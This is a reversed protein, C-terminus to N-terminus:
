SRESRAQRLARPRAVYDRQRGRARGMIERVPGVEASTSSSREPPPSGWVRLNYSSMMEDLGLVGMCSGSPRFLASDGPVRRCNSERTEAPRARRSDSGSSSPWFRKSVILSPDASDGSALKSKYSPSRVPQLRGSPAADLGNLAAVRLATPSKTLKASDGEENIKGLGRQVREMDRGVREMMGGWEERRAINSQEGM